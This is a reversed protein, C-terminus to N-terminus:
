YILPVNYKNSKAQLLIVQICCNNTDQQQPQQKSAIPSQLYPRKQLHSRYAICNVFKCFRSFIDSDAVSLRHLTSFIRIRIKKFKRIRKRGRCDMAEPVCSPRLFCFVLLKVIVALHQLSLM